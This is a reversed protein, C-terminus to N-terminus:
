AGGEYTLELAGIRVLDGDNVGARVLAREVGMRRLRGQVYAMAEANTLDALAVAREAPRGTVRWAHEGERVVSFGQEEPRLVVFPEAEGEEERACEVRTAIEGLLTDVGDRTV